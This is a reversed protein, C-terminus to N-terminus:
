RDSGDGGVPTIRIQAAGDENYIELTYQVTEEGDVVTITATGFTQAHIFIM